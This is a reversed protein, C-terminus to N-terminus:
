CCFITRNNRGMRIEEGSFKEESAIDAFDRSNLMNEVGQQEATHSIVYTSWPYLFL